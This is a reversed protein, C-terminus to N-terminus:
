GREKRPARTGTRVPGDVLDFLMEWHPFSGALAKAFAIEILEGAMDPNRDIMDFLATALRRDESHGAPNGSQGPVWPPKLNQPNAM